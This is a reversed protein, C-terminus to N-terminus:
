HPSRRRTALGVDAAPEVPRPRHGDRDLGALDDGVSVGVALDEPTALGVVSQDAGAGPERLRGVLRRDVAPYQHPRPTRGLRRRRVSRARPFRAGDVLRARRGGAALRCERDGSRRVAPCQRPDEFAVCSGRAPGALPRAFLGLIGVAGALCGDVERGIGLRHHGGGRRDGLGHPTRDPELVAPQGNPGARHVDTRAHLGGIVPHAGPQGVAASGLGTWGLAGGAVRGAGGGGVAGRDNAGDSFGPGGGGVGRDVLVM